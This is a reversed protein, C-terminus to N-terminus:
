AFAPETVSQASGALVRHSRYLLVGTRCVVEGMAMLVLAATWASGSTIDHAISFRVLDPGGGNNAWISFGFRFGMSVVWLGAAIWGAKVLAYRGGDSRVRTTLASAVGLAIGLAAFGIILFLDNGATPISHLYSNCVVAAIGLPLLVAKRDFRAERIQRLVLLVLLSDLLYDTFTM